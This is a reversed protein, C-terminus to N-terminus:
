FNTVLSMRAELVPPKRSKEEMFVYDKYAIRCSFKLARAIKASCHASIWWGRGYLAPVTFRGPIDPEYFYIRGAWDDISFIGARLHASCLSEVKWEQEAYLALGWQSTRSCAATLSTTWNGKWTLSADSRLTLSQHVPEAFILNEKIRFSIRFIEAWKFDAIADVRSTKSGKNNTFAAALAFHHGKPANAELILRAFHKQSTYSIRAGTKLWEGAPVICGLCAAASTLMRNGGTETGNSPSLILAIEGSLDAGRISTRFDASLAASIDPGRLGPMIASVANLGLSCFRGWWNLNLMPSFGAAPATKGGNAAAILATKFGPLALAASLSWRGSSWALAAGTHAYGGKSSHSVALGSPRFILSNVSTASNIQLTNWMIAGQGFRANFDGLYLKLGAKPFNLGCSLTLASISCPVDPRVSEYQGAVGLNFYCDEGKQLRSSSLWSLSTRSQDGGPPFKSSTGTQFEADAVWPAAQGQSDPAFSVFWSLAQAIQLDFGDVASLEQVSLVPGNRSIYDYLSAARFTTFLGSVELDRVNASNIKLPHSAYNEFRQIEDETLEEPEGAGAVLMMAELLTAVLLNLNMLVKASSGWITEAIIALFASIM